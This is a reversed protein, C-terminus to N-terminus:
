PGDIHTMSVFIPSFPRVFDDFAGLDVLCFVGTLFGLDFSFVSLVDLMKAFSEPWVIGFQIDVSLLVVIFSIMIKLHAM